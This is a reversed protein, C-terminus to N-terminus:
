APANDIKDTFIKIEDLITQGLSFLASQRSLIERQFAPTLRPLHDSLDLLRGCIEKICADIFTNEVTSFDRRHPQSLTVYYRALNEPTLDHDLFVQPDIGGDEFTQALVLTIAEKQNEAFSIGDINFIPILTETMYEALSNIERVMRLQAVGNQADIAILEALTQANQPTRGTRRRWAAYLPGALASGVRILLNEVFAM